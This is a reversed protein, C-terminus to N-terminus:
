FRLRIGLGLETQNAFGNTSAQHYGGSLKLHDAAVYVETSTDLHYFVSGYFTSRNGTATATAASGDAFANIVNGGGNVAANNAKMLQYGLEYDLKGPPAFKASLTYAKDSRDGLAGQDAKYHFYGGNLRVIGFKVNGGLSYSDHNHSNVNAHNVFGSVNFTDTGYALAVTQTSGKSLSGAQEGFQYGLGATLGGNFAKKWVVGNNYRTGSASGAYFILQKFNNSNTWGGEELTVNASGYPDGYNQAFDRAVTNQRGFTLKGITDNQVGIWADRGFAAEPDDASGDKLLYENELKFIINLGEDSFTRRGTIGWRAGSFWPASSPTADFGTKRDGAANAHDITGITADILGYLRIGFNPSEYAIGSPQAQASCAAFLVAIALAIRTSQRSM